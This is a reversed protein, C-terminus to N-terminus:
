EYDIIGKLFNPEYKAFDRANEPTKIVKFPALHKISARHYRKGFDLGRFADITHFPIGELKERVFEPSKEWEFALRDVSPEMFLKYLLEGQSHDQKKTFDLESSLQSQFKNLQKNRKRIIKKFGLLHPKGNTPKYTTQIISEHCWMCKAPKGAKGLNVPVSPKLNGYEDYIAFRPQGNQMFSFVEFDTAKFNNEKKSGEGEEALYGISDLHNAPMALYVFRDGIAIGSEGQQFIIPKKRIKYKEKFDALTSQVDTLAYYHYSSNLTLMVFRGIDISNHLRYAESKKMEPILRKWIAIAKEPFGLYKLELKIRDNEFFHIGKEVSGIELSAGLYSFVWKLGTQISDQSNIGTENFYRLNISLDNEQNCATSNVMMLTIGVLFFMIVLYRM